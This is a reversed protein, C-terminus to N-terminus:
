AAGSSAARTPACRRRASRAVSGLAPKSLDRGARPSSHRRTWTVPTRQEFGGLPNAFVREDVLPSPAGANVHRMVGPDLMRKQWLAIEEPKKFLRVHPTDFYFRRALEREADRYFAVAEPHLAPFRWNVNLRMGTVPTVLGAAVKSSTLPEDRDVILFSRGRAALRWALATGALGQGVILFEARM